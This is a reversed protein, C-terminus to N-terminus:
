RGFLMHLDSWHVGSMLAIAVIAGTLILKWKELNSVRQNMQKMTDVIQAVQFELLKFETSTVGAVAVVLSDTKKVEEDSMAVRQPVM